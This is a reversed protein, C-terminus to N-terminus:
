RAALSHRRFLLLMAGLGLFEIGLVAAAPAEATRVVVFEQPEGCCSQTGSVPSYITVNSYNGSPAAAAAIGLETTVASSTLFPSSGPSTLWGNVAAPEFVAWISYSLLDQQYAANPSNAPISALQQSLWAVEEYGLISNPVSAFLGNAAAGAVSFSNVMWNEGLAVEDVFDDCIVATNVVGNVTATYPSVYVGDLNNGNGVGTLCFNNGNSACPVSQASVSGVVGFLLACSLWPITRKM